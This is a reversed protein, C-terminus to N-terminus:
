CETKSENHSALAFLSTGFGSPRMAFGRLSFRVKGGTFLMVTRAIGQRRYKPDVAVNSIYVSKDPRSRYAATAVLIDGLKIFYFTNKSIEKIAGQVGLPPGYIKPTQWKVSLLSLPTQTM